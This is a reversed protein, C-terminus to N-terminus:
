VPSVTGGIGSVNERPPYLWILLQLSLYGVLLWDLQGIVPIFDLEIAPPTFLVPVGVVMRAQCITPGAPAGDASCLTPRVAASVDARRANSAPAAIARKSSRFV